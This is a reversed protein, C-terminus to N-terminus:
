EQADDMDEEEDMDADAVPARIIVTTGRGPTSLVEADGSVERMRERMGALGLSKGTRLADPRIGVGDDTVSLVFERGKLTVAVVVRKADAHRAVNTLAEQFARFIATRQEQNLHPERQPLNFNCPIDTRKEFEQAQWELAPLLGLDDLMPPRLDSAIRRVASVLEDIQSAMDHVVDMLAADAQRGSRVQALTFKLGTLSGGLEDHVERAISVRDKERARESRLSLTRLQEESARLEATREAVRAELTAAWQQTAEFLRARDLALACQRTLAIFLDREDADFTRPEAFSVSVAGLARGDTALPAVAWAKHGSKASAMMDPYLMAAEEPSALFLPEGSRVVDSMPLKAQAPFRRWMDTVGAKYGHTSVIMFAGGDDTLLAFV